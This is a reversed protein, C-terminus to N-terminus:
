DDMVALISTQLIHVPHQRSKVSSQILRGRDRGRLVGLASGVECVYVKALVCMRQPGGVEDTGGGVCM